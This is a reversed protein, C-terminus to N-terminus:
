RTFLRISLFVRYQFCVHNIYLCECADSDFPFSIIYCLYTVLFLKYVCFLSLAIWAYHDYAINTELAIGKAHKFMRVINRTKVNWVRVIGDESGSIL